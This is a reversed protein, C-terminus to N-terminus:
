IDSALAIRITGVPLLLYRWVCVRIVLTQLKTELITHPVRYIITTTRKLGNAGRIFSGMPGQNMPQILPIPGSYSYKLLQAVALLSQELIM